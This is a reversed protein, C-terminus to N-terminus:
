VRMLRLRFIYGLVFAFLLGVGTVNTARTFGQWPGLSTVGAALSTGIVFALLKALAAPRFFASGMGAAVLVLGYGIAQILILIAYALGIGPLGLWAGCVLNVPIAFLLVVLNPLVMKKTCGSIIIVRSFAHSVALILMGVACYAAIHAVLTLSSGEESRIGGYIVRAVDGGAYVVVWAFPLVALLLLLTDNEIRGLAERKGLVALARAWAPELVVFIGGVIVSYIIMSLRDAYGYAAIGGEGMRSAMSSTILATLSQLATVIVLPGASATSRISRVTSTVVHRLTGIAKSWFRIANVRVQLPLLAFNVGAMLLTAVTIAILYTKVLEAQSSGHYKGVWLAILASLNILIPNVAYLVYRGLSRQMTAFLNMATIAIPYLSFILVNAVFLDRTARDFSPAIVESAVMCVAVIVLSFAVSLTETALVFRSSVISFKLMGGAAARRVLEPLLVTAIGGSVFAVEWVSFLQLCLLLSDAAGTAGMVVAIQQVRLFGLFKGFINVLLVIVITLSNSSLLTRLRDTFSM